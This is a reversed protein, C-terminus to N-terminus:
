ESGEAQFNQPCRLTCSRVHRAAHLGSAIIILYRYADCDVITRERQEHIHPQM